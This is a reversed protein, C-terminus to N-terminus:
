STSDSSFARLAQDQQTANSVGRKGWDKGAGGLM